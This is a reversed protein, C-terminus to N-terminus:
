LGILTEGMPILFKKVALPSSTKRDSSNVTHIGNNDM